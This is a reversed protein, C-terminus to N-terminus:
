RYLILNNLQNAINYIVCANYINSVKRCTPPIHTGWCWNAVESTGYSRCSWPLSCFILLAFPSNVVPHKMSAMKNTERCAHPCPLQRKQVTGIHLAKGLFDLLISGAYIPFDSVQDIGVYVHDYQVCDGRDCACLDVCFLCRCISRWCKSDRNDNSCYRNDSINKLPRSHISGM